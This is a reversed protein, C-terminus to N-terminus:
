DEPDWTPQGGLDGIEERSDMVVTEVRIQFVESLPTEYALLAKEFHRNM